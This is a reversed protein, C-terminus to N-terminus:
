LKGRFFDEVRELEEELNAPWGAASELYLRAFRLTDSISIGARKAQLLYEEAREEDKPHVAFPATQYAFGGGILKVWYEESNATM